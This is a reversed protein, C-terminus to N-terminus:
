SVNLSIRYGGNFTVPEPLKVLAIDNHILFPNYSEHKFIDTSTIELRGEEAAERVNHAGLMIRMSQAGDACHGATMVWEDSILTGGCFYKEDIFLAAMRFPLVHIMAISYVCRYIGHISILHPRREVLLVSQPDQCAATELLARPERRTAPTVEESRKSTRLWSKGQWCKRLFILTDM